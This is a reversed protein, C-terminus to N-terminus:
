PNLESINWGNEGELEYVKRVPPSNNGNSIVSEVKSIKFVLLCFNDLSANHVCRLEEEKSLSQIVEAEGSLRRKVITGDNRHIIDKGNTKEEVYELSLYKFGVDLGSPVLAKSTDAASSSSVPFEDGDKREGSAPWSFSARYSGSIKKWQRLREEEWFEDSTMGTPLIIRRPLMGGFRRLLTPTAVVYLRGSLTWTEKTKPMDWFVSHTQSGYKVKGMIESNNAASGFLLVKNDTDLFDLFGISEISPTGNIVSM